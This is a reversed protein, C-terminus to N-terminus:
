FHEFSTHGYRVEQRFRVQILQNEFYKFRAACGPRGSPKNFVKRGIIFIPSACAPIASSPELRLTALRTHKPVRPNLLVKKCPRVHLFAGSFTRQRPLPRPHPSEPPAKRAHPFPNQSEWEWRESQTTVGVGATLLVAPSDSTSTRRHREGVLLVHFSPCVVGALPKKLRVIRFFWASGM